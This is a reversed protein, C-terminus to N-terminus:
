YPCVVLCLFAAFIMIFDSVRGVGEKALCVAISNGARPLHFIEWNIVKSSISKIQLM